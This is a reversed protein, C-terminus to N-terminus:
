QANGKPQMALVAAPAPGTAQCTRPSTGPLSYGNALLRIPVAILRFVLTGFPTGVNEIVAKIRSRSPM